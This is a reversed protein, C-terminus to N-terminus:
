TPLDIRLPPNIRFCHLAVFDGFLFGGVGRAFLRGGDDGLLLGWLNRIM